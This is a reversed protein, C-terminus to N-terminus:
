PGRVGYVASSDYGSNAGPKWVGGTYEFEVSILAIPSAIGLLTAITGGAQDVITYGLGGAKLPAELVIQITEGEQPAPSTGNRLTIISAGSVPSGGNSGPLTFCDGQTTDITHNADSLVVRPRRRARGTRTLQTVDTLSSPGEFSWAASGAAITVTSLSTYSGGGIADLAQPFMLRWANLVASPITSTAGVFPSGPTLALTM